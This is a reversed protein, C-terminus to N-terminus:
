RAAGRTDSAERHAGCKRRCTLDKALLRELRQKWAKEVDRRRVVVAAVETRALGAARQDAGILEVAHNAHSPASLTAATIRSGTIPPPPTNGAGSPYRSRTRSIQLRYPTSSIRSSTIVPKPRVPLSKPNSCAPTRGSM